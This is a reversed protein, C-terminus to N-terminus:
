AVHKVSFNLNVQITFAPFPNDFDELSLTLTVAVRGCPFAGTAGQASGTPVAEWAEPRSDVAM